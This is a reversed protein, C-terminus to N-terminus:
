DLYINEFRLRQTERKLYKKYKLNLYLTFQFKHKSKHGVNYPIKISALDASASFITFNSCVIWMEMLNKCRPWVIRKFM